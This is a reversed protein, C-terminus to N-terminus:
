PNSDRVSHPTLIEEGMIISGDDGKLLVYVDTRGVETYRKPPALAPNPPTWDEDRVWASSNERKAPKSREPPFYRFVKMSVGAAVAFSRLVNNSIAKGPSGNPVTAIRGTSRYEWTEHPGGKRIVHFGWRVALREFDHRSLGSVRSAVM